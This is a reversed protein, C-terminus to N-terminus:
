NRTGECVAANVFKWCKSASLPWVNCSKPEWACAHLILKIAGGIM